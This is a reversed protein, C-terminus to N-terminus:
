TSDSWIGTLREIAPWSAIAEEGTFTMLRFLIIFRRHRPPRPHFRYGAIRSTERDCAESPSLGAYSENTKSGALNELSGGRYIHGSSFEINDGGRWGREEATDVTFDWSFM